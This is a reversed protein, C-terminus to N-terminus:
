KLPKTTRPGGQPDHGPQKPMLVARKVSQSGFRDRLRDLTRELAAEKPATVDILDGRDAADAPGLDSIGIGILRYRRGKPEKALL